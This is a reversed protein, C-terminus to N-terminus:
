KKELDKKAVETQTKIGRILDASAKVAQKISAYSELDNYFNSISEDSLILHVINEDDSENTNRILQALSAHERDIKNSLSKITNSKEKIDVKLQTIILARAKIKTKLANIQGTLYDVDGKLTGTHKQQEKQQNLLETLQAEIQALENKCFDKDAQDSSITLTLCDFIAEAKHAFFLSFTLMLVLFAIVTRNTM